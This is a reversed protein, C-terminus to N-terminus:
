GSFIRRRHVAQADLSPREPDEDSALHRRHQDLDRVEAVGLLLGPELGRGVPGGDDLADIVTDHLIDTRQPFSSAIFLRSKIFPAASAPRYRFIPGAKTSPWVAAGSRAAIRALVRRRDGPRRHRREAPHLREDGPAVLDDDLRVDAPVPHRLHGGARVGLDDPREDLHAEVGPGLVDDDHVVRRVLGLATVDPRPDLVGRLLGPRLDQEGVLVPQLLDRELALPELFPVNELVEELGVLDDVDGDGLDVAQAPQRQRMFFQSPAIPPARFWSWWFSSSPM